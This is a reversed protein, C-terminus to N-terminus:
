EFELTRQRQTLPTQKVPGRAPSREANSAWERAWEEAKSQVCSVLEASAARFEAERTENCEARVQNLLDPLHADIWDGYGSRRLSLDSLVCLRGVTFIAPWSDAFGKTYEAPAASVLAKFMRGLHSVIERMIALDRGVVRLEEHTCHDLAKKMGDFSLHEKIFPAFEFLNAVSDDNPNRPRNGRRAERLKFAEVMRRFPADNLDYECNFFLNYCVSLMTQSVQSGRLGGQQFTLCANYVAGDILDELGLDKEKKMEERMSKSIAEFPSRLAKKVSRLPVPYGLMWLPLYIDDVRGYMRLLNHVWAAQNLVKERQTWAGPQRGAGRGRGRSELDFEPLLENRRWEAIRRESIDAYGLRKLAAVLSAQTLPESQNKQM